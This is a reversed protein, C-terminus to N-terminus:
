ETHHSYSSAANGTVVVPVIGAELTWLLQDSPSNECRLGSAADAIQERSKPQHPSIPGPGHHRM